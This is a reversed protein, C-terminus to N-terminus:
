GRGRERYRARYYERGGREYYWRLHRERECTRCYTRGNKKEARDHHGCQDGRLRHHVRPSLAVLHEPNVCAKNECVHHVHHGEPIPGFHEEYTVRHAYLYAGRRGSPVRAYGNKAIRSGPICDTLPRCFKGPDAM